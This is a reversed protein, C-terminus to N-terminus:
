SRCQLGGCWFSRTRRLFWRPERAPEKNQYTSQPVNLAQLPQSGDFPVQAYESRGARSTSSPGDSVPGLRHPVLMAANPRHHNSFSFLDLQRNRAKYYRVNGFRGCREASSGGCAQGTLGLGWLKGVSTNRTCPHLSELTLRGPTCRWYPFLAAVCTVFLVTISESIRGDEARVERTM